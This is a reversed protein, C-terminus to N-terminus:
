QTLTFSLCTRGGSKRPIHSEGNKDSSESLAVAEATRGPCEHTLACDKSQTFDRSVAGIFGTKCVEGWGSAIALLSDGHLYRSAQGDGHRRNEKERRGHKERLLSRGHLAATRGSLNM